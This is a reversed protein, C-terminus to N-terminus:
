RNRTHQCPEFLMKVDSLSDQLRAHAEALGVPGQCFGGPGKCRLGGVVLLVGAAVWQQNEWVKGAEQQHCVTLGGLKVGGKVLGKVVATAAGKM